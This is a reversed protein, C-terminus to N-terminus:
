VTVGQTLCTIGNELILSGTSYMIELMQFGAELDKSCPGMSHYYVDPLTKLSYKSTPCHALAMMSTPDGNSNKEKM